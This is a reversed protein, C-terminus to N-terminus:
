HYCGHQYSHKKDLVISIDPLFSLCIYVSPHTSLRTIKASILTDSDRRPSWSDSCLSVYYASLSRDHYIAKTLPSLNTSWHQVAPIHPSSQIHIPIPIPPTVVIDLHWIPNWGGLQSWGCPLTMRDGDTAQVAPAPLRPSSSVLPQSLHISVELIGASCIDDDDLSLNWMPSLLTLLNLPPPEDPSSLLRSKSDATDPEVDADDCADVVRDLTYCSTTAKNTHKYVTADQCGGAGPTSTCPSPHTPLRAFLHIPSHAFPRNPLHAFPCIPLYAFPCGHCPCCVMPHSLLWRVYVLNHPHRCSFTKQLHNAYIISLASVKCFSSWTAHFMVIMLSFGPTFATASFIYLSSILSHM